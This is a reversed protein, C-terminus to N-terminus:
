DLFARVKPQDRVEDFDPEALLRRWDKYGLRRAEELFRVTEEVNGASAYIRVFGLATDLPHPDGQFRVTSFPTSVALSPDLEFARALAQRGKAYDGLHMLLNGLNFQALPFGPALAVARELRERAEEYKRNMVSIVGLNCFAEMNEPDLTVAKLLAQEALDIKKLKLYAFGLRAHGQSSDPVCRIAEEFAQAAHQYDAEMLLTGGRTM